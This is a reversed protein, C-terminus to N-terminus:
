EVLVAIFEFHFKANSIEIMINGKCVVAYVSISVPALPILYDKESM